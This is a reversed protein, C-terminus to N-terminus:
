DLWNTCENQKPVTERDQVKGASSKPHQIQRLSWTLVSANRQGGWYRGRCELSKGRGEQQQQRTTLPPKTTLWGHCGSLNIRYSFLCMIVGCNRPIMLCWQPWDLYRGNFRHTFRPVHVNTVVLCEAQALPFRKWLVLYQLKGKYLWSDLIKKVELHKEGKVWIPSPHPKTAPRLSSNYFPRLLSCHIVPHIHRLNKLLELEVIVPNVIRIIPFPGM